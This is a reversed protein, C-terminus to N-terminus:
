TRARILFAVGELAGSWSPNSHMKTAAIDVIQACADREHAAVLQAFKTLCDECGGYDTIWNDPGSLDPDICGSSLGLQYITERDM